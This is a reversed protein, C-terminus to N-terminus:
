RTLRELEDWLRGEEGKLALYQQELKDERTWDGRDAADALAAKTEALKYCIDILESMVWQQRYGQDRWTGELASAKWRYEETNRLNPDQLQVPSDSDDAIAMVPVSLFFATLLVATIRKM